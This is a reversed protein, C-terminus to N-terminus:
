YANSAILLSLSFNTNVFWPTVSVSILSTMIAMLDVRIDIPVTFSSISSNSVFLHTLCPPVSGAINNLKARCYAGLFTFLLTNLVPPPCVIAYQASWMTNVVFPLSIKCLIDSFIVFSHLLIPRLILSFLVFIIFKPFVDFLTLANFHRPM